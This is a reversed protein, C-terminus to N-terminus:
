DGRKRVKLEGNREMFLSDLVLHSIYGTISVTGIFVTDPINKYSWWYGTAVITGYILGALVTHLPGRHRPTVIEYLAGVCLAFTFSIFFRISFYSVYLHSIKFINIFFSNVFELYAATGMLLLKIFKHLFSHNHDIDPMDSSLIYILFGIAIVQSSPSDFRGIRIVFEYIVLIIPYSFIGFRIHTHFNPM